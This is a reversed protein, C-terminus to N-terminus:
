ELLSWGFYGSMEIGDDRVAEILEKLYSEFFAQRATDNIIDALELKGEDEVPFGNETIIIPLGLPKTYKQHLHRLLKRFGWPVTSLKLSILIRM